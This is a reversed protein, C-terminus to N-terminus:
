SDEGLPPQTSALDPLPTPTATAGGNHVEVSKLTFTQKGSSLSASRPLQQMGLQPKWRGRGTPEGERVEQIHEEDWSTM